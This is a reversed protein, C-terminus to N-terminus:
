RLGLQRHRNAVVDTGAKDSVTQDSPTQQPSADADPRPSRRLTLWVALGAALGTGIYIAALSLSTAWYNAIALGPTSSLIFFVLPFFASYFISALPM